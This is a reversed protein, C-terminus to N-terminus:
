GEAQEHDKAALEAALKMRRAPSRLLAMDVGTIVPRNMSTVSLVPEQEMDFHYLASQLNLADGLERTVTARPSTEGSMELSRIRLLFARLLAPSIGTLAKKWESNAYTTFAKEHASIYATGSSCAGLMAHSKDKELETILGTFEDALERSAIRKSHEAKLEPTLNGRLTRFRSRWDQEAQASESLATQREQECRQISAEIDSLKGMSATHADKAENLAALAGAIRQEAGEDQKSIVTQMAKIILEPKM